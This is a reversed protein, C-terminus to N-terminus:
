AQLTKVFQTIAEEDVTNTYEKYGAITKVVLREAFNAKTPDFIGGLFSTATAHELIPKPISDKFYESAKSPDMGSAFLGVKKDLLIDQNKILFNKIERHVMGAYISSGIIVCDYEALDTITSDQKLNHTTADDMKTAIRNAIEQAAGYKSAYIILTKM